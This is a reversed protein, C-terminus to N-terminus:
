SAIEMSPAKVRHEEGRYDMNSSVRERRQAIVGVKQMYKRAIQSQHIAPSQPILLETNRNTLNVSAHTLKM